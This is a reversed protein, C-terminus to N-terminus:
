VESGEVLKYNNFYSLWEFITNELIKVTPRKSPEPDWCQKMLDMYCKPTNKIIEPREGKCIGLSLHHDHARDDFPSIGSTFEWMIMVFSYIDSVSTYPKGRLVEPAM